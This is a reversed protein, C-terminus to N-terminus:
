RGRHVRWLRSTTPGQPSPYEEQGDGLTVVYLYGDPGQHWASTSTLHAVHDDSLVEGAANVEAARIFGVRYDGFLVKNTLMGAYRDKGAEPVYETGVWGINNSAVVVDEDELVYPHVSRDWWLVPDGDGGCPGECLPWGLNRGPGDIMNIEEAVHSGVDGIWYRGLRDRFGSWPARLGTAYLDPSVDPDDPWPNDPAPDAGPGDPERNPVVRILAGLNSALNSAQSSDLKEGFLAWLTGADDDDFGIAGVNHINRDAGPLEVTLVEAASAPVSALDGANWTLRVITGGQISSCYGAYIYANKEFFPDIAVSLLGGDEDTEVGDLWFEGLLLTTDDQLLQLHGIRGEKTVMVLTGDPLFQFATVLSWDGDLPIEVFGLPHNSPVFDDDDSSSDDDDPGTDDDDPGTDDDDAVDDDAAADDDDDAECGAVVFLLSLALL